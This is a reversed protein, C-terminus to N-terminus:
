RGRGVEGLREAIEGLAEGDPSLGTEAAAAAVEAQVADRVAAGGAAEELAAAYADAVHGLEHEGEALARAAAGMAEGGGPTAPSAKSRARCRRSRGTTSRFRSRSRTPCTPSGASTASWSRGARAIMARMAVGSTEGMTPFRLSVCVDSAALLSWLREEDVYEHHVAGEPLELELGPALSGVLLLLAEPVRRRLLAFAELLQPLRKSPNLHGFCGVVFRDGPLDAAATRPAPWAPHPIRWVPGAYGHDQVRGEVYRSHVIVGTSYRLVEGTLPYEPARREWVPPLLGDVVGHALMRGVPGAERQMADLYGDNDKRGLTMGAILHHLVFDHLVVMGPRKRLAEVIWRPAGPRQRRPVARPGHRAADPSGAARVVAVEVRQELAPLLLASYDAIGSREPPLPSYYAVKVGAAPRDRSGLFSSRRGSAPRGGSAPRTSTSPSGRAPRPSRPRTDARGRARHRPRARGRAPRGCRHDHRGAEGRPVGRVPGHRLGRGGARLLRGPLTRLPRRAGGGLGAGRVACPRGAGARARAAGPPGPGPGDGAIVCRLSSDAGLAELLLDVRKARDIRGVSLVFDGYEDCRYPLEQPPHPLVEALLGTSRELRDAVNRSTAFLKRAEGLALRDLRHVERRLARGEPSEDFQGLETRDLEYAQRFQHLLWVVKNRHRVAYSPFKTAIVLDIPAGDAEELDLLRWLFAQTLVREGPYWKFPVTVLEAEHGRKRLEEVLRDSVIEAGGRVFPVQPACVAIRM